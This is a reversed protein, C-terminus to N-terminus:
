GLRNLRPPPPAEAAVAYHAHAAATADLAALERGVADRHRVLDQVLGRVGAETAAAADAVARMFRRLADARPGALAKSRLRQQTPELRRGSEALDAILLDVREALQAVRDMDDAAAAQNQLTVVDAYRRLTSQQSSLAACAELYAREELDRV